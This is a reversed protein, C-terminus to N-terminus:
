KFFAYMPRDFGNKPKADPVHLVEVRSFKVEELLTKEFDKPRIKIKTFNAKHEPSLKAYKRYSKWPQPELVFVGGECLMDHARRFLRMLGEDGTNLQVWKTVSLCFIADFKGRREYVEPSLLTPAAFDETRFAVANFTKWDYCDDLAKTAASILSPDVDVGLVSQPRFRRALKLTFLGTNCGIDLCKKGTVWEERIYDLRCDETRYGYYREYNGKPATSHKKRKKSPETFAKKENNNDDDGCPSELCHPRKSSMEEPPEDANNNQFVNEETNGGKDMVFGIEETETM